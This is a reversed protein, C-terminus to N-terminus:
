RDHRRRLRGAAALAPPRKDDAHSNVERGELWRDVQDKRFRWGRGVRAAPLDGRQIMRYVTMVHVRLYRALEQVTMIAPARQM